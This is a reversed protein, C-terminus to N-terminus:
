QEAKAASLVFNALIRVTAIKRTQVAGFNLIAQLTSAYTSQKAVSDRTLNGLM